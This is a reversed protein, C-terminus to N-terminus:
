RERKTKSDRERIYIYIVPLHHGRRDRLRKPEIEYNSFYPCCFRIKPFRENKQETEFYRKIEYIIIILLLIYEVVELSDRLINAIEAIAAEEGRGFSTKKDKDTISTCPVFIKKARGVRM